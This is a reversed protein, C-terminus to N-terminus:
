EAVETSLMEEMRKARREPFEFVIKVLLRAAPKRLTKPGTLAMRRLEGRARFGVEAELKEVVKLLRLRHKVLKTDDIAEKVLLFAIKLGAQLLTAEACEVESPIKSGLCRIIESFPYLKPEEPVPDVTSSTM